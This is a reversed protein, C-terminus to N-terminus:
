SAGSCQDEGLVWSESRAGLFSNPIVTAVGQNVVETPPSFLTLSRHMRLWHACRAGKQRPLCNTLPLAGKTPLQGVPPNGGGGEGGGGKLEGFDVALTFSASGNPM